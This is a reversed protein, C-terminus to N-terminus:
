GFGKQASTTLEMMERTYTEGDIEEQAYQRMLEDIRAQLEIKDMNAEQNDEYPGLFRSGNLHIMHSPEDAAWAETEWALESLYRRMIARDPFCSVYVLGASSSGFIAKLEGHRKADVPGHTSAAEMLVLWNRDPLHVVLDPFKGHHDIEVGLKNLTEEDFVSLKVDADGIYLVNGGPTFRPCFEEVMQKILINQGGASLKIESGDPLTVPLRTMERDAAYRAVLGPAAVLYSKLGAEFQPTGFSKILELAEPSIRYNNNKDNVTRDPKDFNYQTLGAANFQHLTQRRFTERTNPAYRKAYYNDNVWDLIQTVGLMPNSAQSWPKDTPLQALALLIMASRSGRRGSDFGLKELIESAEEIRTVRVDDM